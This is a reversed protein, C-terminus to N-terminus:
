YREGAKFYWKGDIVNFKEPNERRYRVSDTKKNCKKSCYVAKHSYTDYEKGCVPCTKHYIITNHKGSKQTPKTLADELSWGFKTMRSIVTVPNKGHEKCLKTFSPKETSLPTEFADEVSMGKNVIRDRMTDYPLGLETCWELLTKNEGRYFFKGLGNRRNDNQEKKTKWTCNEPCYGKNNDLREITLDDSYGNSLAWEIFNDTNNWEPCVDLGRGGYDSYRECKPNRCRQKMGGLINYLRKYQSKPYKNRTM